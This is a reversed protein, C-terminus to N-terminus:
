HARLPLAGDLDAHQVRERARHGDALRRELVGDEHHDVLLVLLATQEAPLQLRDDDIGRGVPRQERLLRAPEELM